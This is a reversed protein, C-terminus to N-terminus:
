PASLGHASWSWRPPPRWCSRHLSRRIREARRENRRRQAPTAPWGAPHHGHMFHAKGYPNGPDRPPDTRRLWCPLARVQRDFIRYAQPPWALRDRIGEDRQAAFLAIMGARVTAHTRGGRHAISLPTRGRARLRLYTASPVGFLPPASEAVPVGHFVHFFVHQALHGQTLIRQAHDRLRALRADSASARWPAILRDALQEPAIGRLRALQALTRHDDYLYAELDRGHLGLAAKLSQEDFPAWHGQVWQEAPLWVHDSGPPALSDHAAAAPALALVVIAVLRKV